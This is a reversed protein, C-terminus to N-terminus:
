FKKAPSFECRQIAPPIVGSFTCSTQLFYLGSSTSTDAPTSSPTKPSFLSDFIFFSNSSNSFYPPTVPSNGGYLPYRGVFHVRLSLSRGGKLIGSQRKGFNRQNQWPTKFIKYDFVPLLNHGPKQLRFMKRNKQM